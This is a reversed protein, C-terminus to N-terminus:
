MSLQDYINAEEWITPLENRGSFCGASFRVVPTEIACDFAVYHQGNEKSIRKRVKRMLVFLMFASAAISVYSFTLLIKSMRNSEGQSHSSAISAIKTGDTFTINILDKPLNRAYKKIEDTNMSSTMFNNIEDKTRDRYCDGKLQLQVEAGVLSCYYPLCPETLM